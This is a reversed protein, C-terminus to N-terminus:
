FRAARLAKNLILSCTASNDVATSFEVAIRQKIWVTGINWCRWPYDTMAVCCRNVLYVHNNPGSGVKGIFAKTRNSFADGILSDVETRRINLEESLDPQYSVRFTGHQYIRVETCPNSWAYGPNESAVVCHRCVLYLRNDYGRGCKGIFATLQHSFNGYILDGVECIRTM